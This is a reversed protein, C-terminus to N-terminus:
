ADRVVINVLRGGGALVVREPTRGDLIAVIRERALVAAEIEATSANPRSSSGTACSATSRSRSRAPRRSSPRRISRRGPSPTSRPGRSAPRPWAAAGCSRPSTRRPRAGADAAAPPDGRGVGAGGAVATGRYRFLMNALEMLKAIMTNFRFAEYDATVDRLTRHAASRLAARADATPSAPRCRAPTRTARSAATRTWRRADLGPEPLSPRRRDRDPEVARGPGVPGHVDPVAPRHRRRLPAVLEDPDQVNGRSKCMREGDAGLIQGQNFLRKFPEGSASWAATAGDGQHLLPQVAPAHGRARRRGHVPRGADLSRGDRPRGARRGNDPSLYRYWYWSSDIFTDM